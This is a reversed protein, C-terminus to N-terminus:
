LVSLYTFQLYVSLKSLTTDTVCNVHLFKLHTSVSPAGLTKTTLVLTIQPFLTCVPGRSGVRSLKDGINTISIKLVSNYGSIGLIVSRYSLQKRNVSALDTINPQLHLSKKFAGIPCHFCATQVIHRKTVRNLQYPLHTLLCRAQKCM